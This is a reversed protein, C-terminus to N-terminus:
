DDAPNYGFKTLREEAAEVAGVRLKRQPEEYAAIWEAPTSDVMDYRQLLPARINVWAAKLVSDALLERDEKPFPLWEPHEAQLYEQLNPFLHDSFDSRKPAEHNKCSKCADLAAECSGAVRWGNFAPLLHHSCRHATHNDVRDCKSGCCPCMASCGKILAWVQAQQKHLAGELRTAVLGEVKAEGLLTAMQLGFEGAFRVPDEIDFDAVVPFRESLLPWAKSGEKQSGARSEAALSRLFAQLSSLKSRKAERSGWRHAAGTLADFFSGLQSAIQPRQVRTIAVKRDEFLSAFIKHLYANVDLVYEMVEEWNREVFAQQYAREAAGSADPMDALCQARIDAAVAVLTEDLWERALMDFFRDALMRARGTDSTRRQVIEIFEAETQKRHSQLVQWQHETRKAEARMLGNLVSHRLGLHLVNLFDVCGGRLRIGLQGLFRAEEVQLAETLRKTADLVQEESPMQASQEPIEMALVPALHRRLEPVVINHLLEADSGSRVVPQPRGRDPPRQAVFERLKSPQRVELFNQVREPQWAFGEESLLASAPVLELVHMAEDGHRHQRLVHNFVMCVEDALQKKTRTTRAFREHCKEEFAKWEANFMQRAQEEAIAQSSEAQWLQEITTKFHVKLARLQDRDTADILCLSWTYRTLEGQYEIPTTLKRKAEAKKAEPLKSRRTQLSRELEAQGKKDFQEMIAQLSSRFEADVKDGSEGDGESLRKKFSNLLAQCQEALGGKGRVLHASVQKVLEELERQVEIEQITKYHLLNPGYRDLVRWVSMAHLCWDPLTSFEPSGGESNGALLSDAEKFIKRRLRLAEQAFLETSWRVERGTNPELDSAFASPLLFVSGPDLSILEDLRLSLHSSAEALHKRMLRLADGHVAHSRDHQDRLVFLLKPQIRCVKLHQMAFLCVELLDQLQRSLEGKHNILVLHSCAMAMLALQADFVDGGEAELSMLGETDLILLTRGQCEMLSCYLGRTCRGASTAFGCGFLFNMLTSKASSQIGIVSIVFLEQSYEAGLEKLVEVLFQGACQLPSGFLLQVPCNLHWAWEGFLRKLAAPAPLDPPVRLGLGQLEQSLDSIAAVEEWFSDLSVSLQELAEETAQLRQSLVQLDKKRAGETGRMEQHLQLRQDLLERRRETLPTLRPTRWAALCQSLEAVVAHSLGNESLVTEMFFRIPASMPQALLARRGKELERLSASLEAIQADDLPAEGSADAELLRKEKAKLRALKAAAESVPFVVDRLRGKSKAEAEDLLAGLVQVKRSQLQFDETVLVHRDGALTLRDYFHSFIHKLTDVCPIQAGGSAAESMLFLEQQLKERLRVLARQRHGGSLGSLKELPYIGALSSGLADELCAQIGAMVQQSASGADRHIVLVRIRSPGVGPLRAETLIKLLVLLDPKATVRLQGSTSLPVTGASGKRAGFSGRQDVPRKAQPQRDDGEVQVVFDDMSIHLFSLACTAAFTAILAMWTPDGLSCGHVDATWGLPASSKLLDVGPAHAPSRNALARGHSGEVQSQEVVAAELGLLDGLLTSKGAQACGQAGLSLLLPRECPLALLAEFAEWYVSVGRDVQPTFGDVSDARDLDSPPCPCRISSFALPLPMSTEAAYAYLRSQQEPPTSILTAVLLDRESLDLLLSQLSPTATSDTTFRRLTADPLSTVLQSFLRLRQRRKLWDVLYPRLVWILGRVPLSEEPPWCDALFASLERSSLEGLQLHGFADSGSAYSMEEPDGIFFLEEFAALAATSSSAKRPRVDLPVLSTGKVEATRGSCLLRTLARLGDAEEMLRVAVMPDGLLPEKNHVFLAGERYRSMAAEGQRPTSPNPSAALGKRAGTSAKPAAKPAQKRVPARRQAVSGNSQEAAKAPSRANARNPSSPRATTNTREQPNFASRTQLSRESPTRDISDNPGKISQLFKILEGRVGRNWGDLKVFLKDSNRALSLEFTGHGEMRYFGMNIRQMYQVVPFDDGLRLLASHIDDTSSNFSQDALGLQLSSGGGRRTPSAHGGSPLTRSEHAQGARMGRLASSSPSSMEPVMATVDAELSPPAQRIQVDDGASFSTALPRAPMKQPPKIQTASAQSQPSFTWEPEADRVKQGDLRRSGTAGPAFSM